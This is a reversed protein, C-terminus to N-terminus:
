EAMPWYRFTASSHSATEEAAQQLQWAKAEAEEWTEFYVVEGNSRLPAQRHGTVGGSVECMVIHRHASM